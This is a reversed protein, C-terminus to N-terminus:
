RRVKEIWLVQSQPFQAVATNWADGSNHGQVWVWHPGNRPSMFQVIWVDMGVLSGQQVQWQASQIATSQELQSAILRDGASIGGAPEAVPAPAMAAALMKRRELLKKVYAVDADALKEVTAVVLRGSALRIGIRNGEMGALEGILKSEAVHWERGSATTQCFLGVALM